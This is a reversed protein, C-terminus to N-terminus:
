KDISKAVEWRWFPLGKHDGQEATNRPAIVTGPVHSIRLVYKDFSQTCGATIMQHAWRNLDVVPKVKIRSDNLLSKM